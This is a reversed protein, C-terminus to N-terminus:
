LIQRLQLLMHCNGGRALRQWRWRLGESARCLGLLSVAFCKDKFSEWTWARTTNGFFLDKEFGETKVPPMPREINQSARCRVVGPQQCPSSRADQVSVSHLQSSQRMVVFDERVQLIPSQRAPSCSTPRSWPGVTPYQYTEPVAQRCSTGPSITHRFSPGPSMTQRFSPGPSLTHRFSPGPSMTQRFSTAPSVVPRFSIAPSANSSAPYATAITSYTAEQSRAPSVSRGRTVVVTKPVSASQFPNESSWTCTSQATVPAIIPQLGGLQVTSLKQALSGMSNPVVFPRSNSVATSSIVPAPVSYATTQVPSPSRSFAGSGSRFGCPSPSRHQMQAECLGKPTLTRAVCIRGPPGLSGSPVACQIAQMPMPRALGPQLEQACPPYLAAQKATGMCGTALRNRVGLGDQSPSQHSQGRKLKSFSPVSDQKPKREHPRHAEPFLRSVEDLRLRATATMDEPVHSTPKQVDGVKASHHPKTDSFFRPPSLSRPGQATEESPLDTYAESTRKPPRPM